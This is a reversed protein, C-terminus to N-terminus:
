FSNNICRRVDIETNEDAEQTESLEIAENLKNGLEAEMNKINDM